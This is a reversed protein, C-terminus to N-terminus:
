SAIRRESTRHRSRECEACRRRNGHQRLTNASTFEHGRKCHTWRSKVSVGRGKAVMDRANDAATGLWLHHPNICLRVDCRHLVWLGKPIPQIATEYILRHTLRCRGNVWLTGYGKARSGTWLICGNSGLETRSMLRDYTSLM